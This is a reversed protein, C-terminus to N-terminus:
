HYHEVLPFEDIGCANKYGVTWANVRSIATVGTLRPCLPPSPTRTILWSDGTWRMTVAGRTGNGIAWLHSTGPIAAASFLENYGGRTPTPVVQWGSASHREALFHAHPPNGRTFHGYAEGVAWVGGSAGPVVAGGDLRSSPVLPQRRAVAWGYRGKHLILQRSGGTRTAHAGFAWVSGTSPVTVVGYLDNNLANANPTPVVTWASGDWHEVLTRRRNSSDTQSGVAWVSTPSSVAVGTLDSPLNTATGVGVGPSPVVAWATGDWHEVLGGGADSGVAWVDRGSVAAVSVVSGRNPSVPIAEWSGNSRRRESVLQPSSPLGGYCDGVVWVTAHGPM